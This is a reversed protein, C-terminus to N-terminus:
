KFCVCEYIVNTYYLISLVQEYLVTKPVAGSFADKRNCVKVNEDHVTIGEDSYYLDLIQSLRLSNFDNVWSEM